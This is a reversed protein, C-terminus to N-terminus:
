QRMEGPAIWVAPQAQQNRRIHNMALGIWILGAVAFAAGGIMPIAIIGYHPLFLWSGLVFIISVCLHVFAKPKVLGLGILAVGCTAAWVTALAFLSLALLLHWGPVVDPGAWWRILPRGIILLCVGAGATLSVTIELTRGATKRIWLWDGRRHAEAYAPIYPSVLLYCIGAVIMFLSYPVSYRPVYEPGLRNAILINTSYLIALGALQALLLPGGFGMVTRFSCWNWLRWSPQLDRHRHLFVYATLGSSALLPPLAMVLAFEVLTGRNWYLVVLAALGALSGLTQAYAGLYGEQIGLCVSDVARLAFSAAFCVGCILMFMRADHVLEPKTSIGVLWEMGGWFCLPVVMALVVLSLISFSVFGTSIHRRMLTRDDLGSGEAVSNVLGSSLGLDSLGLWAVLSGITLWLGYREPGLLKLSLPIVVLRAAYGVSRSIVGAKATAWARRERRQRFEDISPLRRASIAVEAM